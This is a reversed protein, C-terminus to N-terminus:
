FIRRLDSSNQLFFVTDGEGGWDFKFVAPFRFGAPLHSSEGTERSFERVSRYARSAPHWTATEHFLRLQGIKGPYRFRASYDPFVHRAHLRAMEFLSQRCGQPLIVAEAMQIAALDTDDPDRGACLINRDGEFCPHYSLIM